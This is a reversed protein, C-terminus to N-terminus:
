FVYDEELPKQTTTPSSQEEFEITLIDKNSKKIYQQVALLQEATILGKKALMEIGTPSIPKKEYFHDGLIKKRFLITDKVWRKDGRRKISLKLNQVKSGNALRRKVEEEVELCWAKLDLSEKYTEALEENTLSELNPFGNKNPFPIINSKTQNM